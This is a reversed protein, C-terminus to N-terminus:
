EEPCDPEEPENGFPNFLAQTLVQVLITPFDEDEAEVPFPDLHILTLVQQGNAPDLTAHNLEPEDAILGPKTYVPTQGPLDSFNLWGALRWELDSVHPYVGTVTDSEDFVIDVGESPIGVLQDYVNLDIDPVLEIGALDVEIRDYAGTFGAGVFVDTTDDSIVRLDTLGDISLELNDVKITPMALRGEIRISYIDGGCDMEWVAQDLETEFSTDIRAGVTINGTPEAPSDLQIAVAGPNAPDDAIALAFQSGLDTFSLAINGAGTIPIGPAPNGQVLDAEIAALGDLSNGSADYGVTPVGMEDDSGFGSIDITMDTPIDQLRVLASGTADPIGALDVATAQVELNEVSEGLVSRIVSNQGFTGTFELSRPVPDLTVKGRYEGYQATDAQMQATLAGVTDSATYALCMETWQGQQDFCGEAGFQYPGVTLDLLDPLDDLTIKGATSPVDDLVGQLEVFLELKSDPSEIGNIITQQGALDITLGTPLGPLHVSAVAAWCTDFFKCFEPRTEGSCGPSGAECGAVRAAIGNGYIPSGLGELAQVKGAKAQLNVALNPGATEIVVKGEQILVDIGDPTELTGALALRTDDAGGAAFVVDADVTITQSHMGLDFHQNDGETSYSVRSVNSVSASADIDGNSERYGLAFHSGTPALADDHNTIAAAARGLEGEAAEFLYSGGAWKVTFGAPVGTIDLWAGWLDDEFPMNNALMRIAGLPESMVGTAVSNPTDVVVNVEAPLLDLVADVYGEDDGTVKLALREVPGANTMAIETRAGLDAALDFTQPVGTLAARARLVPFDEHTTAADVDLALNGLPASSAYAVDVTGGGVTIPGVTFDVPSPLGTLTAHARLDPLDDIMGILRVYAELTGVPPTYDDLEVTRTAFDVAVETPLGQLNVTAVLGLCGQDRCFPTEDAACGAGTDCTRAVAAVGNGYLPAGLGDLAAVKGLTAHLLLGINRDATYSLRDGSFHVNLTSPLNDVRGLLALRLDDVSADQPDALLVDIDIFVPDGGTDTDLQFAQTEGTDAYEILTLNRTSV